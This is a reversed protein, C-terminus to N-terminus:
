CFRFSYLDADELRFRLKVPRGALRGLDPGGTWKLTRELDDGIGDVCDDLSFGSIPLGQTDQIEARISGAASASFNVVLEKGRFVIPKTILEGGLRTARASVFGDVRLTYRRYVKSYHNRRSGESVYFTLEKAAGEIGSDTEVIGWNAYNDGYIWNDIPRLGPRVFAEGRLKFNVGDRSTMLLTDTLATGIRTVKTREIISRRREPEPLAEIAESWEGRAVYRSPLGIFIHPARYYPIVQNTYLEETVGDPYYLWEAESWNVFDDSTATKIGRYRKDAADAYFDRWYARYEGRTEDWFALNQSDFAGDTIVPEESIPQWRIADRSSLAFLARKKKGAIHTTTLAKYRQEKGCAPNGDIFPSLDETWVINNDKSGEFEFLGLDPTRWSIGDDSEAYFEWRRSHDTFHDRSVGFYMRFVGDDEFVTMYAHGARLGNGEEEVVPDSVLPFVVERAAPQHMHLAIGGRFGELLYDDVLLELRSGIDLPKM